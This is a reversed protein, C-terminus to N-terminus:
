SLRLRYAEECPSHTSLRTSCLRLVCANMAVARDGHCLYLNLSGAPDATTLTLLYGTCHCTM